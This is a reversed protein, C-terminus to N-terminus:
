EANITASVTVTMELFYPESSAQFHVEEPASPYVISGASRSLAPVSTIMVSFASM